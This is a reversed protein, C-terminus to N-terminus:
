KDKLGVLLAVRASAIRRASFQRLSITAQIFLFMNFSLASLVSSM